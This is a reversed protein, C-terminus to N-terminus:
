ELWKRHLPKLIIIIHFSISKNVGLPLRNLITYFYTINKTSYFDLEVLSTPKIHVGRLTNRKLQM